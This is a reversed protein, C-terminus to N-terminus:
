FPIDDPSIEADRPDDRTASGIADKLAKGHQRQLAKTDPADKRAKKDPVHDGPNLWSVKPYEKGNYDEIKVTVQVSRGPSPGDVDLSGDWGLCRKLNQCVGHNPSGDKGVVWFDGWVVCPEALPEWAGDRLRERLWFKVTIAVADSSKSQKAMWRSDEGRYIGPEGVRKDESYGM